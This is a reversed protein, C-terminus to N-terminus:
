RPRAVRRLGPFAASIDPPHRLRWARVWTVHQALDSLTDALRSPAPGPPRGAEAGARAALERTRLRIADPLDFEEAIIEFMKQLNQQMVVRDGSIQGRVRGMVALTGPVRVARAGSAVIRIWLEWDDTGALRPEFAGVQELVSRRVTTATFPIFCSEILQALFAETDDPPPALRGHAALVTSRHIRRHEHDMVYSDTYALGVSEDAMTERVAELYSPLKLDDTDLFTVYEGRAAAIARNRTTNAGANAQHHVVLRPDEVALRDIIEGTADSSGDDIIILEFDGFTQARASDIAMEITGAANYAAMVISFLPAGVEAQATVPAGEQLGDDM